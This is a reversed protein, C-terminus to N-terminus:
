KKKATKKKATTNNKKKKAARNTVYDTIVGTAVGLAFEVGHKKVLKGLQRTLKKRTDPKVKKM